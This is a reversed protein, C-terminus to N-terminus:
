HKLYTHNVDFTPMVVHSLTDAVKTEQLLSRIKEHLFEGDYKPGGRAFIKVANRIFSPVWARCSFADIASTTTDRNNPFWKIGLKSVPVVAKLEM